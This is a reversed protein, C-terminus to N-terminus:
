YAMPMVFGRVAGRPSCVEVYRMNARRLAQEIRAVCCMACLTIPETAELFRAELGKELVKSFNEGTLGASGIWVFRAGQGCSDCQNAIAGIM